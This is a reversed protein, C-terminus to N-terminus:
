AEMVKTTCSPFSNGVRNATVIDMNGDGDLDM